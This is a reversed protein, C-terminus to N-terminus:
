KSCSSFKILESFKVGDSNLASLRIFPRLWCLAMEYLQLPAETITLVGNLSRLSWLWDPPEFLEVLLPEHFRLQFNFSRDDLESFSDLLEVSDFPEALAAGLFLEFSTIQQLVGGNTTCQLKPVPRVPSKIKASIIIYQKSRLWTLLWLWLGCVYM